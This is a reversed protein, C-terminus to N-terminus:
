RGTVGTSNTEEAVAALETAACNTIESLQAAALPTMRGALGNLMLPSLECGNDALISLTGALFAAGDSCEAIPGLTDFLECAREALATAREMDEFIAEVHRARIMLVGVLVMADDQEGHAAALNAFAEAAVMAEFDPVGNLQSAICDFVLAALARRDGRAARELLNDGEAM